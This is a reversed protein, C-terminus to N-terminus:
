PYNPHLPQPVFNNAIPCPTVNPIEQWGKRQHTIYPTWHYFCGTEFKTGTWMMIYSSIYHIHWFRSTNARAQTFCHPFDPLTQALIALIFQAQHYTHMNLYTHVITTLVKIGYQVMTLTNFLALYLFIKPTPLGSRFGRVQFTCTCAVWAEKNNVWCIYCQFAITIFTLM